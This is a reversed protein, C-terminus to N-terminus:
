GMLTDMQAGREASQVFNINTSVATEGIGGCERRFGCFHFASIDLSQILGSCVTLTDVFVDKCCDLHETQVHPLVEERQPHRLV